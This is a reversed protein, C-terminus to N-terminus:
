LLHDNKTSPYITFLTRKLLVTKGCEVSLVKEITLFKVDDKRVHSVQYNSLIGKHDWSVYSNRYDENLTKINIRKTGM